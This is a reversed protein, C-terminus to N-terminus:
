KKPKKASAPPTWRPLGGPVPSPMLVPPGGYQFTRQAHENAAIAELRALEDDTVYKGISDLPREGRALLRQNLWSILVYEIFLSRNKGAERAAVNLEHLLNPHMRMATRESRVDDPDSPPRGTKKKGPKPKTVM